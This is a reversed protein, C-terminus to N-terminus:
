LGQRNEKLLNLFILNLSHFIGNKLKKTEEQLFDKYASNKLIKYDNNKEFNRILM